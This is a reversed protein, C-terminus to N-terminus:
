GATGAVWPFGPHVRKETAILARQPALSPLAGPREDRPQSREVPTAPQESPSRPRLTVVSHGSKAQEARVRRCFERIDYGAAAFLAERAARVEAVIPDHWVRADKSTESM